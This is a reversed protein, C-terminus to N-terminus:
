HIINTYLVAPDDDPRYSSQPGPNATLV